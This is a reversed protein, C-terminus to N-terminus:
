APVLDFDLGRAHAEEYKKKDFFYLRKGRASTGLPVIYRAKEIKRRFNSIDFKRGLIIEYMGRLEALTFIEPLLGMGLPAYRAKGELRELAAQLIQEPDFALPPRSIADKTNWVDRANWWRAEAADSDAVIVHDQSRVLAFYAVSVVRERPDRKLAGFTYLQELHAPKIGTEERLERFAAEDLTEKMEVYGGPLALRDQYPNKKRKILLVDLTGDRGDLGFVVIDVTLAPRPYKYKTM